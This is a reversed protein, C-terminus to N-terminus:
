THPAPTAHIPCPRRQRRRRRRRRRRRWGVRLASSPACDGARSQARRRRSASRGGGGADGGGDGDGLDPHDEHVIQRSPLAGASGASTLEARRRSSIERGRSDVAPAAPVAPMRRKACAPRASAGGPTHRAGRFRSPPARRTSRPARRPPPRRGDLGGLRRWGCTRRHLHVAAAVALGGGGGGGAALAVASAVALSGGRRRRRRVRAGLAGRRRAPLEPGHRRADDDDNDDAGAAAAGAAAAFRGLPHTTRPLESASHACRFLSRTNFM